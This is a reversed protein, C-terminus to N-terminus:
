SLLIAALGTITLLDKLIRGSFIDQQLYILAFFWKERTKSVKEKLKERLLVL